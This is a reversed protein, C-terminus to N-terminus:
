EKDRGPKRRKRTEADLGGFYVNRVEPARMLDHPAGELAVRGQAMVIARDAVRFAASLNQEVLM